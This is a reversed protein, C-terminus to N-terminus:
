DGDGATMPEVDFLKNVCDELLDGIFKKNECDDRVIRERLEKEQLDLDDRQQQIKQLQQSLTNELFNKNPEMSKIKSDIELRLDELKATM